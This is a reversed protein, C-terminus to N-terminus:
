SAKTKNSMKNKISHNARNQVYKTSTSNFVTIGNDVNSVM